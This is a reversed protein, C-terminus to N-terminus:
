ELSSLPVWCSPRGPANEEFRALTVPKGRETVETTAVVRGSAARDAHVVGVPATTAFNTKIM